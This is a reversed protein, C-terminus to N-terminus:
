ASPFFWSIFFGPYSTYPRLHISFIQTDWLNKVVESRGPIKQIEDLIFVTKGPGTEIRALDWQQTIWERGKLAPKDASVYRCSVGSDEM